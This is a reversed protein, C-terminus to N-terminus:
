GRTGEGAVARAICWQAAWYSSLVWLSALPLPAAFRDWALLGDSLVFLAGGIALRAGGAARAGFAFAAMSALVAVYALVPVRLADPVMPLLLTLLGVAILAYAVAALVVDRWRARRAFAAIYALHALLFAGLGAAFADFPLMLAVDGLLSCLLGTLVGLRFGHPDGSRWVLVILLATTLPKFAYHLPLATPAMLAGLIALVAAILVAGDLRNVV